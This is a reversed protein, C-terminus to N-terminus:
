MRNKKCYTDFEKMIESIETKWTSKSCYEINMSTITYGHHYKGNSTLYNKFIEPVARKLCEKKSVFVKSLNYPDSDNSGYGLINNKDRAIRSSGYGSEHCSLAMIFIANLGLDSELSKYTSGLGALNSDKSRLFADIDASSAYSESILNFDNALNSVSPTSSFKAIFSISKRKRLEEYKKLKKELKKLDKEQDKLLIQYETDMDDIDENLVDIKEQLDSKQSELAELNSELEQKEQQIKQNEEELKRNTSSASSIGFAATIGICLMLLYAVAKVKFKEAKNAFVCVTKDFKTCRVPLEDQMTEHKKSKDKGRISKSMSTIQIENIPCSGGEKRQVIIIIAM